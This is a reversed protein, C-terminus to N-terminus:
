QAQQRAAAEIELSIAMELGQPQLGGVRVGNIFYTPTQSINLAGGDSIDKRIGPLQKAYEADFDTVGLIRQTAARLEAPTTGQNAYIWDAMEQYKGRDKAMRAAAAADCAAEHGRVTSMYHFNCAADLPWDKIVYKVAGPQTQAFKDLVPKYLAEAQRCSPCEYDNFKVVVVKAGEPDIGLDVRPQQAWAAAFDAATGTGAAAQQVPDEDKPFLAVAGVFGVAVLAVVVIM